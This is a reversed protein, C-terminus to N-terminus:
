PMVSHRSYYNRLIKLQSKIWEYTIFRLLSNRFTRGCDLIIDSSNKMPFEDELKHGLVSTVESCCSFIELLQMRELVFERCWVYRLIVSVFLFTAAVFSGASVVVVASAAQNTVWVDPMSADSQGIAIFSCHNYRVECQVANSYELQCQNFLSNCGFFGGMQNTFSLWSSRLVQASLGLQSHRCLNSITCLPLGPLNKRRSKVPFFNRLQHM